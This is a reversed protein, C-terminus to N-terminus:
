DIFEKLIIVVKRIKNFVRIYIVIIVGRNWDVVVVNMDEVFFLGEVLDEIWVLFFGILRFGYVFFIIKKTVNLNGM